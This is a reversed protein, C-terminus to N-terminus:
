PSTEFSPKMSLKVTLNEPLDPYIWLYRNNTLPVPRKMHSKFMALVTVRILASTMIVDKGQEEYNYAVAQSDWQNELTWPGM